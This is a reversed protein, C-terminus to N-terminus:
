GARSLGRRLAILRYSPDPRPVDPDPLAALQAALAEAQAGRATLRSAYQGKLLARATRHPPRGQGHGAFYTGGAPFLGRAAGYAEIRDARDLVATTLYPALVADIDSGVDHGADKDVTTVFVGGPRLVRAAEAVVAEAEPV